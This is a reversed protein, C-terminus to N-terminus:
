NLKLDPYQTKLSKLFEEALLTTDIGLESLKLEPNIRKSKAEQPGIFLENNMNAITRKFADKLEEDQHEAFDQPLNNILQQCVRNYFEVKRLAIITMVETFNEFQQKRTKEM